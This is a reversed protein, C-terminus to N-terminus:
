PQVRELSDALRFAFDRLARYGATEDHDGPESPAGTPAPRYWDVRFRTLTGEPAPALSVVFTALRVGPALVSGNVIRGDSVADVTVITSGTSASGAEAAVVALVREATAPAVLAFSLARMRDHMSGREALEHSADVDRPDSQSPPAGVALPDGLDAAPLAPGASAGALAPQGRAGSRGARLAVIACAVALVAFAAASTWWAQWPVRSADWSGVAIGRPTALFLSAPAGAAGIAAFPAADSGIESLTAGSELDVLAIRPASGGIAVMITGEAPGDAVAFVPDAPEYRAAADLTQADLLLLREEDWVAVSAGGDVLAIGSRGETPTAVARVVGADATDLVVIATDTLAHVTSAPGPAFRVIPMGVRVGRVDGSARDYLWVLDDGAASVAVSSADSSMAVELQVASGIDIQAAAGVPAATADISFLSLSGAADVAALMDGAPSLALGLVDDDLTVREDARTAGAFTTLLVTAGHSRAVIGPAAAVPGPDALQAGDEPSPDMVAGLGPGTMTGDRLATTSSETRSQQLLPAAVSGVAVLAFVAAAVGAGVRLRRGPAGAKSM